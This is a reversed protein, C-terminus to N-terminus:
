LFIPSSSHTATAAPSGSATNSVTAKYADFLTPNSLATLSDQVAGILNTIKLIATNQSNLNNVQAIDPKEQLLTDATYKEIISDYDICSAIGPFSVPAADGLTGSTASTTGTTASM